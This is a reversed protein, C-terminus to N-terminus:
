DHDMPVSMM